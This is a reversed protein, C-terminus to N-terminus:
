TGVYIYVKTLLSITLIGDVGCSLVISFVFNIPVFPVIYTNYINSMRRVLM